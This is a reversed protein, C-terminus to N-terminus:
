VGIGGITRTYFPLDGDYHNAMNQWAVFFGPMIEEPAPAGPGYPGGIGGSGPPVPVGGAGAASAGAQAWGMWALYKGSTWTTWPRFTRRSGVYKAYAARANNRPDLLGYDIAVQPVSNGPTIQWLGWGTTAYPEGRQIADANAGAEPQTIATAVVADGPPFGAWVAVTYIQAASLINTM